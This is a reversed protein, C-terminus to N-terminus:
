ELEVIEVRIPKIPKWYGRQRRGDFYSLTAVAAILAFALLLAFTEKM